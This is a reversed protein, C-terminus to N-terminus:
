GKYPDYSSIDGRAGAKRDLATSGEAAKEARRVPSMMDGGLMKLCSTRATLPSHWATNAMRQTLKTIYMAMHTDGREEDESFMLNEFTLRVAAATTPAVVPSTLLSWTNIRLLQAAFHV